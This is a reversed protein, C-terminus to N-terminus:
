SERSHIGLVGARDGGSCENWNTKMSSNEEGPETPVPGLIPCLLSLASFISLLM